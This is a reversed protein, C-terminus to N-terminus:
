RPLLPLKPQCVQTRHFAKEAQGAPANQRLAPLSFTQFSKLLGIALLLFFFLAYFVLRHLFVLIRVDFMPYNILYRDQCM